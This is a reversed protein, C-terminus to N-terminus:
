IERAIKEESRKKAEANRASLTSKAGGSFIGNRDPNIPLRVQERIKKILPDELVSSAKRSQDMEEQYAADKAYKEKILANVDDMRIRKDLIDKEEPSDPVELIELTVEGDDQFDTKFKNYFFRPCLADM